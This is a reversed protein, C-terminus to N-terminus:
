GTLQKRLHSAKEHCWNQKMERRKTQAQNKEQQFTHNKTVSKKLFGLAQHAKPTNSVGGWFFFQPENDDVCDKNKVIFQRQHHKLYIHM